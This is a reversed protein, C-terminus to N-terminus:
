EQLTCAEPLRRTDWMGPISGAAYYTSLIPKNFSHPIRPRYEFAHVRTHVRKHTHTHTCRHMHSVSLCINFNQISRFVIPCDWLFVCVWLPFPFYTSLSSFTVTSAPFNLSLFTISHPLETVHSTGIRPQRIENTGIFQPYYGNERVNPNIPTTYTLCQVWDRTEVCSAAWGRSLKRQIWSSM